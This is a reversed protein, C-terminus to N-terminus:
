VRACASIATAFAPTPRSQSRGGAERIRRQGEGRRHQRADPQRIRALRAHPFGRPRRRAEHARQARDGVQVCRHEVQPRRGVHRAARLHAVAYPARAGRGARHGRVLARATLGLPAHDPDDFAHIIFHAAGPHKPNEAFVKEAISAALAQRRFGKDTPRVTGLLSLAYWTAVEHDDPWQAYMSAMRTPIPSHRARAQRGARLLPHRDGEPVSEGEAAESEGAARGVDARDKRPDGERGQRGAAGVASPQPEDGRGLVGDRVVSRSDARAPVRGRSRRVPLQAPGQRGRHVGGARRREGSNPFTITGLEQSSLPSALAVFAVRPCALSLLAQRM